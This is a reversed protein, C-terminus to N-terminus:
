GASMLLKLLTGGIDGRVKVVLLVEESERSSALFDKSASVTMPM